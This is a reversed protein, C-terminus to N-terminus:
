IEQIFFLLKQESPCAQWHPKNKKFNLKTPKQKETYRDKKM